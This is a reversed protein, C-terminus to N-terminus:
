KHEARLVALKVAAELSGTDATGQWAIEFATGHDVSTRIIPLGLTSNVGRDFALMKFPIHGQDHYMSLIGDYKSRISEIFLTDPPFPGDIHMGSERLGALAPKVVEEDEKGMYGNEGAHPNIAAAALCPSAIGEAKVANELLRAVECIREATAAQPVEQLPIHTTVFAVRLSGASQMMAFNNCNCLEAILETHGTFPIAALNVSAKNMPATVIADVKGALADRTAQIVADRAAIGCAADATAVPVSAFELNGIAKIQPINGGAFRKAAAKIIDPCGYVIIEALGSLEPKAAAKVAIEPGIGAPDGMTLAIVPKKM